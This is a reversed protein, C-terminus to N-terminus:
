RNISFKPMSGLSSTFGGSRIMKNGKHNSESNTIKVWIM